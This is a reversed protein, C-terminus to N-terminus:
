TPNNLLGTVLIVTPSYVFYFLYATQGSAISVPFTIDVTSRWNGGKSLTCAGSSATVAIVGSQGPKANSPNGLTRNAGLSVSFNFGAAMDVAITAADTLSVVEAADWVNGPTLGILGATDNRYQAATAASLKTEDLENVATGVRDMWRYTHTSPKGDKDALAASQTPTPLRKRM